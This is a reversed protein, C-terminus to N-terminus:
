KLHVIGLKIGAKEWTVPGHVMEPGGLAEVRM